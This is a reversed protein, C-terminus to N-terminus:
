GFGGIIITTIYAIVHTSVNQLCKSIFLPLAGGGLGVLLMKVDELSHGSEGEKFMTSLFALSGVMANHHGSSLSSHQLKTSSAASGGKSKKKKKSTNPALFELYPTCLFRTRSRM